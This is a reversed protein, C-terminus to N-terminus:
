AQAQVVSTDLKNMDVQMLVQGATVVDGVKVNVQGVTGNVQWTVSGTQPSALSGSAAVSAVLTGTAVTTTQLNATPNASAATLRRHVFFGGGGLVALVIVIIVIRRAM